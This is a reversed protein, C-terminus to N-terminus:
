NIDKKNIKKDNNFSSKKKSAGELFLGEAYINKAYDCFDKYFIMDHIMLDHEKDIEQYYEQEMKDPWLFKSNNSLYIIDLIIRVAQDRIKIIIEQEEKEKHLAYSRAILCAHASAMLCVLDAVYHMHQSPTM